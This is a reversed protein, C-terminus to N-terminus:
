IEPNADTAQNNLFESTSKEAAKEAKAQRVKDMNDSVKGKVYYFLIVWIIVGLLPLAWWYKKLTTLNIM